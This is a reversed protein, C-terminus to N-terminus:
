RRRRSTQRRRASAGLTLSSAVVLIMASPEPVAASATGDAGSSDGFHTKWADYDGEDVVGDFNSDADLGAGTQGLSNRWVTYDAANVIGDFNFDGDLATAFHPQLVAMAAKDTQSPQGLNAPDLLFM